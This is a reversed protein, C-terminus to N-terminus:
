PENRLHAILMFFANGAGTGLLVSAGIVHVMKLLLYFMLPRVPWLQHIRGGSGDDLLDVLVTAALGAARRAVCCAAFFSWDKVVLAATGHRDDSVEDERAKKLGRQEKGGVSIKRRRNIM